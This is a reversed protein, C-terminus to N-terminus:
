SVGLYMGALAQAGGVGDLTGEGVVRGQDLLYVRDVADAIFHPSQEVLLIAMGKDRLRALGEVLQEVIVPALGASLEDIVMLKPDMMLGRAVALMQQEGGSLSGAAQAHREALRPFLQFADDVPIRRRAVLAAVDLNERVSMAGLVHRGEPVHALGAKARAWPPRRGIEVGDLRVAGSCTPLVGSLARLLSTKGAGNAGLVGVLEGASVQLEIDRLVLAKTYGGSLGHVELLSM